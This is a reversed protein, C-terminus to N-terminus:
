CVAPEADDLEAAAEEAEPPRDYWPREEGGAGTRTLRWPEAAAEPTDAQYLHYRARRRRAARMRIGPITNREM